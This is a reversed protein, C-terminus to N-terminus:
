DVSRDVRSIVLIDFVFVHATKMFKCCFNPILNLGPFHRIIDIGQLFGM